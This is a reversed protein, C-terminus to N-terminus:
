VFVFILLVLVFILLSLINYFSFTFVHKAIIQDYFIKKEWDHIGANADGKTQVFKEKLNKDIVRHIVNIENNKGLSSFGSDRVKFIIIDGDERSAKLNDCEKNSIKRVLVIDNVKILPEMSGSDVRYFNFFLFKLAIEHSWFLNCLTILFLYFFLINIMIIFIKFFYILKNKIIKKM